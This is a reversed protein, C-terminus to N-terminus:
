PNLRTASWPSGDFSAEDYRTLERTWVARDHVRGPGEIWLELRDLWLRFGGWHPPRPIRANPADDPVAFRERVANVQETLTARSALPESQQSAWAGIRSALPRTAFYADSEEVPSRLVPGSVRVQRHQHDWHLAASAYPRAELDRGKRSRYNTYFVLYGPSSVVEKVLVIRVSPRGDADVTAIAMSNPNPQDAREIAEDFWARFIPMPDPPLPEPLFENTTM